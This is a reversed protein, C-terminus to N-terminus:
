RRWRSRGRFHVSQKRDGGRFAPPGISPDHANGSNQYQDDQDGHRNDDNELTSVHRRFLISEGNDRRLEPLLSDLTHSEVPLAGELEDGDELAEAVIGVGDWVM